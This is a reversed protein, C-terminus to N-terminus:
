GRCRALSDGEAAEPVTELTFSRSMGGNGGAPEGGAQHPEKLLTNPLNCVIFDSIKPNQIPDLM